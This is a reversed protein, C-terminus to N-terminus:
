KCLLLERISSIISKVETIIRKNTKYPWNDYRWKWKQNENQADGGKQLQRTLLTNIKNIKKIFWSQTENIREILKSKELQNIETRLKVM